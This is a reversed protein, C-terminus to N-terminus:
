KKQQLYKQLLKELIEETTYPPEIIEKLILGKIYGSTDPQQDLHELLFREHEKFSVSRINDRKAM